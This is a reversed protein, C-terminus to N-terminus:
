RVPIHKVPLNTKRAYHVAQATGSKPKGDWFAVLVKGHDLMFENRKRFASFGNEQTIELGLEIVQDARRIWDQCERPQKQVTDPVVVIIKPTKGVRYHFSAKLVENDTGRAGGVWIEDVTSNEVVMKVGAWVKRIDEPSLDRHGSFVVVKPVSDM